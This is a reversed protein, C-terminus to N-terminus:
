FSNPNEKAYKIERLTLNPRVYEEFSQKAGDISDWHGLFKIGNIFFNIDEETLEVLTKEM